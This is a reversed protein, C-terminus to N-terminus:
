NITAITYQILFHKIQHFEFIRKGINIYFEMKIWAINCLIIGGFVNIQLAYKIM